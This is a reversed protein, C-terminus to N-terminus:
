LNFCLNEVVKKLLYHKEIELLDFVYLFKVFWQTNYPTKNESLTYYWNLVLVGSLDTIKKRKVASLIKVTYPSYQFNSSQLVFFYKSNIESIKINFQYLPM